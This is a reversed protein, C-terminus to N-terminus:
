RNGSPRRRAHDLRDVHRAYQGLLHAQVPIVLGAFAVWGLCPIILLLSGGLNVILATLLWQVTVGGLTSATGWLRSTKFFVKYPSGQAYRVTGVALVSWAFATYILVLPLVCCLFLLTVYSGTLDGGFFGPVTWLCCGLLLLPLNYYLVAALLGAGRSFLEEYQTWDPLPYPKSQQVRGVVGVAYGLLVCLPLLGALLLPMLLVSAFTLVAAIALKNVWLPDDFSYRLARLLDM